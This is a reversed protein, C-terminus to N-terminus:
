HDSRPSTPQPHRLSRLHTLAAGLLTVVAVSAALMIWMLTQTIAPHTM